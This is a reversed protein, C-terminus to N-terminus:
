HVTPVASAGPDPRRPSSRECEPDFGKVRGSTASPSHLQESPSPPLTSMSVLSNEVEACHFTQNGQM